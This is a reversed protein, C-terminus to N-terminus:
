KFSKTVVEYRPTAKEKDEEAYQFVFALTKGSKQMTYIEIKYALDGLASLLEIGQYEVSGISRKCPATSKESYKAGLNAFAERFEVLLDRQLEASPIEVPFVQIMLLTSDTSELTIQKIGYFSEKGIKMESPYSFSIGHEHFERTKVGKVSVLVPHGNKLIIEQEVGQAFM